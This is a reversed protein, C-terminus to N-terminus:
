VCRSTYLLCRRFRPWDLKVVDLGNLDLRDFLHHDTAIGPLLYVKMTM